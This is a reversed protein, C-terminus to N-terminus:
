VLIKGCCHKHKKMSGCSCLSNRGVKKNNLSPHHEIKEGGMPPTNDEFEIKVNLIKDLITVRWHEIMAKFMKFSDMKYENLPDKQAYARLGISQRLHDLALLHDKWLHDLIFLMIRQIAYNMSDAGYEETKNKIIKQAQANIYNNISVVSLNDLNKIDEVTLNTLMIQNAYDCMEGLNWLEPPKKPNIYQSVCEEIFQQLQENFISPINNIDLLDHRLSYIVARQQNMVDDYKLLNKRIDYNRSEVKQQAKQLARSVWPHSLATGEEM